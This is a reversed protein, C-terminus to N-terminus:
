IKQKTSKQEHSKTGLDGSIIEMAFVISVNSGEGGILRLTFFAGNWKEVLM